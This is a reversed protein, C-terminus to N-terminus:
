QGGARRAARLMAGSVGTHGASAARSCCPQLMAGGVGTHGAREECAPVVRRVALAGDACDRRVKPRQQVLAVGHVLEQQRVREDNVVALRRRAVRVSRRRDGGIRRCRKTSQRQFTHPTGQGAVYQKGVDSRGRAHM